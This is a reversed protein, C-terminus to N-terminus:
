EILWVSISLLLLTVVHPRALFHISAGGVGLLAVFLAVFLHVGRSVMRRVLTLAFLAILVAAMLVIGKLGAIGHLGSDIVDTLWEWAYWPADPKSFSYLDVHPVAHHSLIYDGTRIHWGVDADALLGEWGAAGSSMFLWVLIALFFLDSLSPVMVRAWRATLISELNRAPARMAPLAQPPTM